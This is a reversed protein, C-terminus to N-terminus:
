GSGSHVEKIVLEIIRSIKEEIVPSLELGESIDAPKVGIFVVEDPKTGIFGATKLVYTFDIEHASRLIGANVELDRDTFRYLTGPIGDTLVADIIIVKKRGEICYLLSLGMTGGDMIEVSPPLAMDRMRQVIHVGIGEDKLLLNGIGLVLIPKKDTLEMYSSGLIRPDLKCLFKYTVYL